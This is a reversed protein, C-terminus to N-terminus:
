RLFSRIVLMLPSAAEQQQPDTDISMNYRISTETSHGLEAHWHYQGTSLAQAVKCGGGCRPVPESGQKHALASINAEHYSRASAVKGARSLGALWAARGRRRSTAAHCAAHGAVAVGRPRRVRNVGAGCHQRILSRMEM